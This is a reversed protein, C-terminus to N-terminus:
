FLKNLVSEVDENYKIEILNINEEICYNRLWNDRIVQKQFKIEGGFHKIPIYHQEGNYEIITNIEPIYFDVYIVGSPRINTPVSIQKYKTFKINKLNLYSEICSEGKSQSCKPCGYGKLHSHPTQWFEGHKPCIICVKEETTIYQVKNYDYKNKHVISAKKIFELNNSTLSKKIKVIGCEPCGHGRLLNNPTSKWECGDIKCKCKIKENSKIYPSLIEINPNLKYLEQKFKESNKRSNFGQKKEEVNQAYIDM